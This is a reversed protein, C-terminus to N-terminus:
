SSKIMFKAINNIFLSYQEETFQFNIGLKIFYENVGVLNNGIITYKNKIIQSCREITYYRLGLLSIKIKHYPYKEILEDEINKVKDATNKSKETDLNLNSKLEAYYIIKRKKDEFLHDKEKEGKTNKPRIDVLDTTKLIIEKLLKELGTGLKICDSQSLILDKILYSLSNYDKNPNSIVNKLYECEKISVLITEFLISQNVLSFSIDFLEDIIHRIIEHNNELSIKNTEDIIDDIVQESVM